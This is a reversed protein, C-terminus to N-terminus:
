DELQEFNTIGYYHKLVSKEVSTPERNKSTINFYNAYFCYKCFDKSLNKTCSECFILPKKINEDIFTNSNTRKGPPFYVKPKKDKRFIVVKRNFKVVSKIKPRSLSVNFDFLSKFSDDKKIKKDKIVSQWTFKEQYSTEKLKEIRRKIKKRLNKGFNHKKKQRQRLLYESTFYGKESM